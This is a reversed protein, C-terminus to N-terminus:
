FSQDSVANMLEAALIRSQIAIFGHETLGRYTVSIETVTGRWSYQQNLGRMMAGPAFTHKGYTSELYALIAKHTDESQYHIRAQAFQDDLTLFKMSEVPIDWAKPETNNLGYFVINNDSDIKLLKPHNILSHGWQIGYFGMPDDSIPIVALSSPTHGILLFLIFFSALQSTRNM